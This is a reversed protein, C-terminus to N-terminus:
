REMWEAVAAVACIAAFAILGLWILILHSM